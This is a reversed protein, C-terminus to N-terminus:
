QGGAVAPPDSNVTKTRDLYFLATATLLGTATFAHGLIGAVRVWSNSPALNWVFGMGVYIGMSLVILGMASLFQTQMLVLSARVSQSVRAGRLAVGHITFALYFLVWLVVSGGMMVVFQAALPGLLLALLAAVLTPLGIVAVVLAVLFAIKLLGWWVAPIRGLSLAQDRVRSTLMEWYVASLMLGALNLLLFIAFYLWESSISWITPIGTPIKDALVGAMLSPVGLLMPSLWSFLNISKVFPEVQDFLQQVTVVPSMATVLSQFLSYASLHPGLWLFADLLIPM